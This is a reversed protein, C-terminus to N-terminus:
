FFSQTKANKAHSKISKFEKCGLFSQTKASKALYKINKIEERVLFFSQPKANKAHYKTSKFEKCGWFFKADKREKRSLKCRCSQLKSIAPFFDRPVRPSFLNYYLYNFVYICLAFLFM